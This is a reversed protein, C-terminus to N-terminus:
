DEEAHRVSEPRFYMRREGEDEKVYVTFGDRQTSERLHTSHDRIVTCPWDRVVAGLWTAGTVIVKDGPVFPRPEAPVEKGLPEDEGGVIDGETPFYAAPTPEGALEEETFTEDGPQGKVLGAPSVERGEMVARTVAIDEPTTTFDVGFVNKMFETNGMDVWGSSVAKGTLTAVGDSDVNFSPLDMEVNPLFTRFYSLDQPANVEPEPDRRVADADIIADDVEVVDDTAFFAAAGTAEKLNVMTDRLSDTKRAESAVLIFEGTPLRMTSLKM